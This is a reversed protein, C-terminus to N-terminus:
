LRRLVASVGGASWMPYPWPHGAVNFFFATTHLLTYTGPYEMLDVFLRDSLPDWNFPIRAQM